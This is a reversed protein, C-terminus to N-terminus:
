KGLKRLVLEGFAPDVNAAVPLAWHNENAFRRCKVADKETMVVCDAGALALDAATFAHHDPFPHPTISLGLRRLHGFFREPNGIGAFAHVRRAAFHEPGVHHGPHLLNHFERGALTMAFAAPATAQIGIRASESINVVIADVSTLRAPPERLPGAPLLHTNGLGRAGDVVVIEINRALRYQQLGDDSVIVNCAPQAALLARAAAVRDAGIWVPAGCRQALMVAEDGSIAPDSGSTVRQPVTGAGRYGRSVIGPQMGHERLFTVLWLVVPTKGTGGVSINGVVIVPVPLKAVPLIGARYLARRLAVAVRFVLSPLYLLPTLPTIGYWHRELWHM